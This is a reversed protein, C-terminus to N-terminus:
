VDVLVQLPQGGPAFGPHPLKNRASIEEARNADGYVRYATVLAPESVTPVLQAVRALSGGRATLDKVLARQLVDLGSFGVDDGADGAEILAGDIRGALDDRVRVADDFAAFSMNVTSRVAEALASQRILGVLGSQNARQVKRASSQGLVPDLADGFGSLTTMARLAASPTLASAGLGRTVGQVVDALQGPRRVFFDAQSALSAAATRLSYLPSGQVAAGNVAAELAGSVKGILDIGAAQSFASLGEGTFRSLFGERTKALAQDAAEASQAATDARVTPATPDAADFFTLSFIAMGGEDASESQRVAGCVVQLTGLYPHVLTGAGLANVATALADRGAMYDPGIVFASIQYRGSVQGLDEPYAKDRFPYEHIEVRRGLDRDHGEVEFPVGRFSAPRLQDRWAM